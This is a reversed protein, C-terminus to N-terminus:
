LDLCHQWPSLRINVFGIRLEAIMGSFLCRHVFIIKIVEFIMKLTDSTVLYPSNFSLFASEPDSGVFLQCVNIFWLLFILLHGCVHMKKKTTWLHCLVNLM